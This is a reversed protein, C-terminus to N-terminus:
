LSGFDDGPSGGDGADGGGRRAEMGGHRRAKQSLLYLAYASVITLSGAIVWMRRPPFSTPTALLLVWGIMAAILTVVAFLVQAMLGLSAPGPRRGDDVGPHGDRAIAHEVLKLVDVDVDTGCEPCRAVDLGALDYGCAECRGTPELFPEDIDVWEYLGGCRACPSVEDLELPEHCTPCCAESRDVIPVPLHLGNAELVRQAEDLDESAVWIEGATVIGAVMHALGAAGAGPDVTREVLGAGDLVVRSRM